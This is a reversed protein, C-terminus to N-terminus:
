IRDAILDFVNEILTSSSSRNISLVLLEFNNISSLSTRNTIPFVPLPFLV